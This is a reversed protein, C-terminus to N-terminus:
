NEEKSMKRECIVRRKELELIEDEEPLQNLELWNFAEIATNYYGINCYYIASALAYFYAKNDSTTKEYGKDLKEELALNRGKSYDYNDVEEVIERNSAYKDGEEFVGKEKFIPYFIALVAIFIITLVVMLEFFLKKYNIGDEAINKAKKLKHM